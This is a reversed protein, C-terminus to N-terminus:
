KWIDSHKRKQQKYIYEEERTLTYAMDQCEEAPVILVWPEDECDDQVMPAQKKDAKLCQLYLKVGPELCVPKGVCTWRGYYKSFSAVVRWILTKYKVVCHRDIAAVNGQDAGQPGSTKDVTMWRQHISAHSRDPLSASVKKSCMGYSSLEIAAEVVDHLSTPQQFRKMCKLLVDKNPPGGPLPQMDADGHALIIEEECAALEATPDVQEGFDLGSPICQGLKAAVETPTSQAMAEEVGEPDVDVDEECPFAEEFKGQLAATVSSTFAALSETKFRKFNEAPGSNLWGMIRHFPGDPKSVIEYRSKVWMWLQPAVPQEGDYSVKRACGQISESVNKKTLKGQKELMQQILDPLRQGGEDYVKAVNGKFVLDGEEMAEGIHTVNACITVLDNITFEKQVARLNGISCECMMSQARQPELVADSAILFMTFIICSITNKRTIPHLGRVNLFYNLALCLLLTRNHASLWNITGGFCKRGYPNTSFKIVRCFFHWLVTMAGTRSQGSHQWVQALAVGHSLANVRADAFLHRVTWHHRAIETEAWIGPDVFATGIYKPSTGLLAALNLSKAQHFTDMLCIDNIECRLFALQRGVRWPQEKPHGDMAVSLLIFKPHACVHDIIEQNWTPGTHGAYVGLLRLCPSAANSEQFSLVALKALNPTKVADGFDHLIADMLEPLKYDKHYRMGGVEKQFMTVRKHHPNSDNNTGSGGFDSIHKGGEVCASGFSGTEWLCWFM